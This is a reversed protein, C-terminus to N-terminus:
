PVLMKIVSVVIDSGGAEKVLHIVDPVGSVEVAIQVAFGSDGYLQSM